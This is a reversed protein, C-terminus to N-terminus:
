KEPCLPNREPSKNDSPQRTAATVLPPDRRRAARSEKEAFNIHSIRMQDRAPSPAGPGSDPAHTDLLFSLSLSFCFFSCLFVSWFGLSLAPAVSFPPTPPLSLFLFLKVCPPLSQSVLVSFFPM